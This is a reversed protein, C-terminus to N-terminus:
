FTSYNKISWNQNVINFIKITKLSIVEAFLLRNSKYLMYFILNSVMGM